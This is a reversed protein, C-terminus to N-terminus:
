SAVVSSWKLALWVVWQRRESEDEGDRDVQWVREILGGPTEEPQFFHDAKRESINEVELNFQLLKELFRQVTWRGTHMGAVLYIRADSRPRLVRALTQCLSLHHDPNWLTDAAMIVDFTGLQTTDDGWAHGVVRMTSPSLNNRTINEKLIHLIADDPYDSLTVQTRGRTQKALLIGPMGSGAGLELVQLLGENRSPSPLVSIIHDIHNALFLAAIWISSAHLSWNSAAPSPLVFESGSAEHLFVDGTYTVPTYSYLSQLSSSLIDEPKSM